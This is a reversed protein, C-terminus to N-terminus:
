FIKISIGITKEPLKRKEIISNVIEELPLVNYNNSILEDIHKNFQSMKVNTSPYKNEGFRHYVFISASNEEDANVKNFSLLILIIFFYIFKNLLFM